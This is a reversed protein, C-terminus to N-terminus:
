LTHEHNQTQKNKRSVRLYKIIKMTNHVENIILVLLLIAYRLIMSVEETQIHAQLLILAQM